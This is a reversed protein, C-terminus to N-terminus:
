IMVAEPVDKFHPDATVVKADKPRATGLVLGDFLSPARDHRQLLHCDEVTREAIRKGSLSSVDVIQAL